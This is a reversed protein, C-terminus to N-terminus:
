VGWEAALRRQEQRQARQIEIPNASPSYVNIVASNNYNRTAQAAVNGIQSGSAVQSLAQAAKAVMGMNGEIGVAVGAPIMKGVEDRMLRSPSKIKLASKITKEVAAALAKAEEMLPGKMAKMGEIMGEIANKGARQMGPTLEGMEKITQAKLANIQKLWSEKYALVTKEAKDREAQIKRALEAKEEVMEKSAQFAAIRAKEDYLRQYEALQADNLSALAAIEAAAKPGQNELEELLTQSLGRGKLANISTAYQKLADVQTGLNAILQDGSVDTKPTIEDFISAFNTLAAKREALEKKYEDTLAKETAKLQDRTAKVKAVYDDNIKDLKKYFEEAAKAEAAAEKAKEKQAAYIESQVKRSQEASLKHQADIRKLAAIYQDANIKNTDFKVEANKIAESVGKAMAKAQDEAKKSSKQIGNAFGEGTWQGYQTTVKSPSNIDMVGTIASKVKEALEEAAKKVSEFKSRIGDVLGNVIDKGISSLDIGELFSKAKNWGNEVATKVKDMATEITSKFSNFVKEVAAKAGNVLTTTTSKVNSWANSVTTKVSNLVNSITNRIGEWVSSIFSRVANFVTTTVTKIANWATTFLTRYTNLITTFFSKIGDWVNTIFSKVANFVTSTVTKIANWSTTFLNKYFNLVNTFYSKIGDWLSTIFSKVANFVSTTVTKIANWITTFLTKYFNLVFTFYAKIGDWITKIFNSIGTLVDSTTQKIYDWGTTFYSKLTAFLESTTTKIYDWGTAFYSSLTTFLESTKASIEDWNKYIIIGLTTILAIAIGIPGTLALMVTRIVTFATKLKSLYPLLPGIATIINGIAGVIVGFVVIVPGLAAAILGFITTIMQGAPSLQAFWESVTQVAASLKPLIAEAMSLLIEGLPLLATQLERFATTLRSGFNDYLADGATKTSGEFNGLDTNVNAFFTQFEPGLDEIPTGLLAVATQARAAPDEVSAIASTVAAFASKASEGGSNIDGEIKEFDLGLSGLADRSGKSGDGIRLFAEKAADGVKDLNFAGSEAGAILIATFEEADYGMGKFQPAYERMTDLLEDSFNGGRQFGTTMLDLATQSDVGFNKMLVSATRTSENIEAGFADKLTYAGELVKQLDTDNLDGMNQKVIALNDTVEQLSEGFANKWVNTAVTELKEAEKGTVGLQAQIRGQASDVDNATKVAGAGLALLPATVGTSLSGGIDKMKDGAASVKEGAEQMSQALKDWKSETQTLESQQAALAQKVGNLETETRNFEGVAKNLLQALEQTKQSYEGTAKASEEYRQRLQAVKAEQVQLTRGLADQRQSLGEVSNGWESGKARISRLEAGLVKLSQNIGSVSSNFGADNLSLGVSIQGIEEAM